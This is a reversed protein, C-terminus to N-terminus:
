FECGLYLFGFRSVTSEDTHLKHKRRYMVLVSVLPIGAAYLVLFPMGVMTAWVLHSGQWCVIEFDRRLYTNPDNEGLSECTLLQVSKRTLTPHILVMVVITSVIIEKRTEEWTPLTTTNEAPSKQEQSQEKISGEISHQQGAEDLEEEEHGTKLYKRYKCLRVMHVVLWFLMVAMVFFFPGLLILLTTSYVVSTDGSRDSEDSYVCELNVVDESVSSVVDFMRFLTVTTAPWRFPMGAAIALIQLHAAAIKMTISTNTPDEITTTMSSYIFAGFVVFICLIGFAALLKAEVGTALCTACHDAGDRSWGAMCRHCLRGVYGPACSENFTNKNLYSNNYMEKDVLLPNKTGLCAEAAKCKFFSDNMKPIPRWWGNKAKILGQKNCYAGENCPKCTATPTIETDLFNNGDNESGPDLSYTGEICVFCFKRDNARQVEGLVCETCHKSSEDSRTAPPCDDCKLAGHNAAYTGALCNECISQGTQSQSMGPRCLQCESSRESSFSGKLCDTCTNGNGIKGAVCPTCRFGVVDLKKLEEGLSCEAIFVELDTEVISTGVTAAFHIKHQGPEGGLILTNFIADGTEVDVFIPDAQFLPVTSYESSARVAIEAKVVQGHRDVVSFLIPPNTIKNDNSIKEISERRVTANVPETAQDNGYLAINDQFTVDISLAPAVAGVRYIAGGGGNNAKNNIFKTSQISAEKPAKHIALGGGRGATNNHFTSDGIKLVACEDCMIAGGDGSAVNSHFTSASIELESESVLLMGAGNIEEDGVGSSILTNHSFDTDEVKLTCGNSKLGRGQTNFITSNQNMELTSVVCMVAASGATCTTDRVAVTSLLVNASSVYIAGSGISRELASDAMTVTSSRGVYMAGGHRESKDFRSWLNNVIVSSPAGGKTDSTVSLCGGHKYAHNHKCRMHTILVDTSTDISLAGGNDAATNREFVLNALKLRARVNAIRLAGGSGSALMSFGTFTCDEITVDFYNSGIELGTSPLNKLSVASIDPANTGQFFHLGQVLKPAFTQAGINLNMCQSHCVVKTAVSGEQSFIQMNSEGFKMPKSVNYEGPGLIFVFSTTSGGYEFAGAITKCPGSDLLSRNLCMFDSGDSQSITKNTAAVITELIVSPRAPPDSSLLDLWLPTSTKVAYKAEILIHYKTKSNLVAPITVVFPQNAVTDAASLVGPGLVDVPTAQSADTDGCENEALWQLTYYIIPAGTWATPSVQFALETRDVTPVQDGGVKPDIENLTVVTAEGEVMRGESALSYKSYGTYKGNVNIYKARVQYQYGTIQNGLLGNPTTWNYASNITAVHTWKQPLHVSTYWQWVEYSGNQTSPRVGPGKFLSASWSINLAYKGNVGGAKTVIPQSPPSPISKLLSVSTVPVSCKNEFDQGVCAQVTVQLSIMGVYDNNLQVLKSFTWNTWKKSALDVFEYTKDTEATVIVADEKLVQDGVNPDAPDFTVDNLLNKSTNTLVHYVTIKIYSTNRFLDSVDRPIMGTVTISPGHLEGAVAITTNLSIPRISIDYFCQDQNIETTFSNDHPCSWCVNYKLFADPPHCPPSTTTTTSTINCGLSNCTKAHAQLSTDTESGTGLSLTVATNGDTVVDFSGELNTGEFIEVAYHSIDAGGDNEPTVIGVDVSHEGAVRLEVSKPADPVSTIATISTTSCDDSNCSYVDASCPKTSSETLNMIGDTTNLEFLFFTEPTAVYSVVVKFHTLNARVGIEPPVIKVSLSNEGAVRLNAKKPPGPLAGLYCKDRSAACYMGTSTTCTASGCICETGNNIFTGNTVTCGGEICNILPPNGLNVECGGSYRAAICLDALPSDCSYTPTIGVMQSPVLMNMTYLKTTAATSFINGSDSYATNSSAFIVDVLVAMSSGEMRLAGGQHNVNCANECGCCCSQSCGQWGCRFCCGCGCPEARTRSCYSCDSNCGTNRGSGVWAGALELNVLMLKATGTLWFHRVFLESAGQAGGRNLVPHVLSNIGRVRLQQENGVSVTAAMACTEVGVDVFAEGLTFAPCADLRRWAMLRRRDGLTPKNGGVGDFSDASEDRLQALAESKWTGDLVDVIERGGRRILFFLSIALSGDRVSCAPPAVVTERQRGEQGHGHGGRRNELRNEVFANHLVDQSYLILRNPQGEVRHIEQFNSSGDERLSESDIDEDGSGEHVCAVSTPYERCFATENGHVSTMRELGSEIERFFATGTSIKASDDVSSTGDFGFYLVGAPAVIDGLEGLETEMNDNPFWGQQCVVSAFGRVHERREFIEKPFHGNELLIKSALVAEIISDVIAWDIVAIKGNAKNEHGEFFDTRSRLDDRISNYSKESLLNDLVAIPTKGNGVYEVTCTTTTTATEHATAESLSLVLLLPILRNWASPRRCAEGRNQHNWARAVACKMRKDTTRPRSTSTISILFMPILFFIWALVRVFIVVTLTVYMKRTCTGKDRYTSFGTPPTGTPAGVFVPHRKRTDAATAPGQGCSGHRTGPTQDGTQDGPRTVPRTMTPVHNGAPLTGRTGVTDSLLTICPTITTGNLVGPLIGLLEAIRSM